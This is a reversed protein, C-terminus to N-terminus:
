NYQNKLWILVVETLDPYRRIGIVTLKLYCKSSNYSLRGRFLSWRGVFAEPPWQACTQSYKLFVFICTFVTKRLEVWHLSRKDDCNKSLCQNTDSLAMQFLKWLFNLVVENKRLQIKKQLFGFLKFTKKWDTLFFTTPSKQAQRILCKLFNWTMAEIVWCLFKSVDQRRSRKVKSFLKGLLFNKSLNFCIHKM